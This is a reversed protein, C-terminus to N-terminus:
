VGVIRLRAPIVLLRVASSTAMPGAMTFAAPVTMPMIWMSRVPRLDPMYVCSIMDAFCLSAAAGCSIELSYSATGLSVVKALLKMRQQGSSCCPRSIQLFSSSDLMAPTTTARSSSPLANLSDSVCLGGTPSEVQGAGPIAVQM